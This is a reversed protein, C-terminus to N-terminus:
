GQNVDRTQSLFATCEDSFTKYAITIDQSVSEIRTKLNPEGVYAPLIHRPQDLDRILQLFVFLLARYKQFAEGVPTDRVYFSYRHTLDYMQKSADVLTNNAEIINSSSLDFGHLYVSIVGQLPHYTQEVLKSFEGYAELRQQRIGSEDQLSRRFEELRRNQEARFSEIALDVEQKLEAKRTELHHDAAAKAAQEVLAKVVFGIAGAAGILGVVLKLIEGLDM